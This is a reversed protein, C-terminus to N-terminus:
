EGGRLKWNLKVTIPAQATGEAAERIAFTKADRSVAIATGPNGRRRFRFLEKTGSVLLSGGRVDIAAAMVIGSGQDFILEKGDGRWRPEIGGSSSIQWKGGGAPFTQVYVERRGTEVSEYAVFKSDPSFQPSGAEMDLYPATKNGNKLDVTWLSTKETATNEYLLYNGDPSAHMHHTRVKAVLKESGAGNAPIQYIAPDAGARASYFYVEKGDASWVGPGESGEHFTLKSALNRSLDVTWLDAAGGQSRELLLRDGAPSMEVHSTENPVADKLTGIKKGSRDYLSLQEATGAGGVYAIVGGDTSASFRRDGVLSIILSEALMVQINSKGKKPDFEAAALGGNHAVLLKNPHVYGFRTALGYVRVPPENGDVRALYVGSLLPDRRQSRYLIHEGDPLAIPDRQWNEDKDLKFAPVAQGGTAPVKMIPGRAGAFYIIGGAGWATGYEMDSGALIVQGSSATVDMTKMDNRGSRYVIARSDPSWSLLASNPVLDDVRRAKVSDISRIWLRGGDSETRYALMKGNPSVFVERVVGGELGIEFQSPSPEPANAPRLFNSGALALALSAAVAWALWNHWAKGLRSRSSSAPEAAPENTISQLDLVVDRMSQYRDEPDKALCRRVMRELSPPTFPKVSMPAPEGGLIAGLLSTYNKGKFAKEGTVMEYIVAGMAWIDCRTDAEKGEFQEPAMYQPTGLISGETTLAKTLTEETPGTKPASKALGFDLVKVGDRTLMINSPKVDRHTVGARHARDLADAIQTALKLAQEVPIPGKEIRAGLTEGEMYEMVMFDAGNHSGIDHLVCIHPHNLSAVARAEREFRARLDARKAIHEPLVKIAVMRDLRTDKAKYVEGMGGAGIPSIIEYHGLRNGTELPM